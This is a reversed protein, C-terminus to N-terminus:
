EHYEYEQNDNWRLIHWSIVSFMNFLECWANLYVVKCQENAEDDRCSSKSNLDEALVIDVVSKDELNILVVSEDVMLEVFYGEYESEDPEEAQYPLEQLDFKVWHEVCIESDECKEKHYAKDRDAQKWEM